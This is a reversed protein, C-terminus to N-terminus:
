HTDIKPPMLFSSEDCSWAPNSRVVWIEV